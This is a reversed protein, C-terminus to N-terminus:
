LEPVLTKVLLAAAKAEPPLEDGDPEIAGAPDGPAGEPGPEIGAPAGGAEGQALEQMVKEATAQDIEGAQVAAMLMQAIQELSPPEDGAGELSPEQPAGGEAAPAMSADMQAADMAGQQAALKEMEDPIGALLNAHVRAIKLIEEREPASASKLLEEAALLEADEHAAASKQWEAYALQEAVAQEYQATANAMLTRAAEAGASKLLCAEATARGEETELLSAALKHLDNCVTSQSSESDIFEPM